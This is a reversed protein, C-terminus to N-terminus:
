NTELIKEMLADLKIMNEEKNLIQEQTADILYQTTEADNPADIAINLRLYNGEEIIKIMDYDQPLELNTSTNTNNKKSVSSDKPAANSGNNETNLTGNGISLVYVDKYDLEKQPITPPLYLNSDKSFALVSENKNLNASVRDNQNTSSSEPNIKPSTALLSERFTPPAYGHNLLHKLCDKLRYEGVVEKFVKEFGETEFQLTMYNKLQELTRHVLGRKSFMKQSQSLYITMIEDLSYLPEDPQHPNNIALASTIIGGSSTGVILDFMEIIKKGGSRREIEKLITVPVEGRFGEKDITLIRFKQM